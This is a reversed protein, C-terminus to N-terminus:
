REDGVDSVGTEGHGVEVVRQHHPAGSEPERELPGERETRLLEISEGALAGDVHAARPRGGEGAPVVARGHRDLEGVIAREPEWKPKRRQKRPM